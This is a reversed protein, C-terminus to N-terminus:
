EVPMQPPLGCPAGGALLARDFHLGLSGGSQFSMAAVSGSLDLGDPAAVAARPAIVVASVQPRKVLTVSSGAVWIRVGAPSPKSGLPDGGQSTLSGGIVLDLEADPDLAVDLADRLSVDGAVALLARGHVRLALSSSLDIATVFYRGCPLDIAGPGDKGDLADPALGITADDNQGTVAAITAPLDPLLAPNCAACPPEITVPAVATMAAMVSPAVMASAPVHLTGAIKVQGDIDGTVFADGDCVTDANRADLPGGIRLSQHSELHANLIAGGSGSIILAGGVTLEADTTLNGDSGIAAGAHQDGSAGSSDFSDSQTQSDFGLSACSCLAYRSLEAALGGSCIPGSAGALQIPSGLGSCIPGGDGGGDPLLEVNQDCGAIALLVLLSNRL